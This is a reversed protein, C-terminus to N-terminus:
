PADIDLSFRATPRKTRRYVGNNWLIREVSLEEDRIIACWPRAPFTFGGTNIITYKGRTWVGAHHSHGLILFRTQPAYHDLFNKALSPEKRWYSLVRPVEWPKLLVRLFNSDGTSSLVHDELFESHGVHQAIILRADLTDREAPDLKQIAQKTMESMQKASETWPAVAPHLADGHMVLVKDDALKLYRSDTLFADHNGSILRLKVGDYATLEDLKEVEKVAATRLRPMQVEAVDGNIILEDVGEWLPRLTEVTTRRHRGLHTDSIIMQTYPM